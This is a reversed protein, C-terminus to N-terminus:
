NLKFKQNNNNNDKKNENKKQTLLVVIAYAVIGFVSLFGVVLALRIM